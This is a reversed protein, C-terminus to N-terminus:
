LSLKDHLPQDSNKKEQDKIDRSIGLRVSPLILIMGKEITWAAPRNLVLNPDSFAGQKYGPKDWKSQAIDSIKIVNGKPIDRLAYVIYHDGTAWLKTPLGFDKFTFVHNAPLQRDAIREIAYGMFIIPYAPCKAAPVLKKVLNSECLKEGKVISRSSCIAYTEVKNAEHSALAVPFSTCAVIPLWICFRYLCAISFLSRRAKM